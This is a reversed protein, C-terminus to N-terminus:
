YSKEHVLLIDRANTLHIKNTAYDGLDKITAGLELLRKLLEPQHYGFDQGAYSITKGHAVIFEAFQKNDIDAM